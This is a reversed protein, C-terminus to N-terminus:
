RLRSRSLPMSRVCKALDVARLTVVVDSHDAIAPLREMAVRGAASAICDFALPLGTVGEGHYAVDPRPGRISQCVYSAATVLV